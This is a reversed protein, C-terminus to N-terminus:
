LAKDISKKCIIKGTLKQPYMSFFLLYHACFPRHRYRCRGKSSTGNKIKTVHGLVRQLLGLLEAMKMKQGNANM